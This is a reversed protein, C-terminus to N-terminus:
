ILHFNARFDCLLELVSLKAPVKLFGHNREFVECPPKSGSRAFFLGYQTTLLIHSSSQLAVYKSSTYALLKEAVYCCNPHFTSILSIRLWLPASM